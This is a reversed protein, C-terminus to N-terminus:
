LYPMGNPYSPMVWPQKKHPGFDRSDHQYRASYYSSITTPANYLAALLYQRINRIKTTNEKLCDFVYRIHDGNLKLLRSRVVEAPYDAGAVRVSTRATTVIDVMLNLIEELQEQAEPMDHQLVDYDINEMILERYAETNIAIKDSRNQGLSRLVTPKCGVSLIPDTNSGYTNSEKTNSQNTNSQAPKEQEPKAQVPEEQVPSDLVPNDLVPNERKPSEAPFYPEETIIYEVKTLLGKADRLRRRRIYGAAELEKITSCISDVGDKCILSLGKTTYDWNEPLSLMLSLLGKAKLSLAQNRLHHNAMVTYDKTKDVRFVSM